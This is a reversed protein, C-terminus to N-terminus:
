SKKKDRAAYAQEILRQIFKSRTVDGRDADIRDLMDQEFSIGMSVSKRERKAM